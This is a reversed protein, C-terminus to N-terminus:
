KRGSEPLAAEWKVDKAAQTVYSPLAVYTRGAGGGNVAGWEVRAGGEYLRGLGALM